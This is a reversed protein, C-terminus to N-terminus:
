FRTPITYSLVLHAVVKMPKKLEVNQTLAPLQMSTHKEERVSNRNAGGHQLGGTGKNSLSEQITFNNVSNRNNSLGLCYNNDPKKGTKGTNQDDKSFNKGHIRNNGSDSQDQVKSDSNVDQSFHLEQGPDRDGYEVDNM